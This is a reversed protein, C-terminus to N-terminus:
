FPIHDGWGLDRTVLRVRRSLLSPVGGALSVTDYYKGVAFLKTSGGDLATRYIQLASVAHAQGRAEDFEVKYVTVNRTLQSHDSNHMPLMNFFGEMEQRDRDLWTMEKKIEPSYAALQYRFEPHCLKMFGPFDQEDLLMCSRYVFEEVVSRGADM